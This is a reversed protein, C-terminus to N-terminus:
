FLLSLFLEQIFYDFLEDKLIKTNTIKFNRFIPIMGFKGVGGKLHIDFIKVNKVQEKILRRYFIFFKATRSFFFFFFIAEILPCSTVTELERFFVYILCLTYHLCICIYKKVMFFSCCRSSQVLTSLTLFLSSSFLSLSLSSCFLFFPLARWTLCLVPPQGKVTTRTDAHHICVTSACHVCLHVPCVADQHRDHVFKWVAATAKSNSTSSCTALPNLLWPLAGEKGELEATSAGRWACWVTRRAAAPRTSAARDAALVVLCWWCCCCMLLSVRRHKQRARARLWDTVWDTLWATLSETLWDCTHVRFLITASGLEWGGEKEEWLLLFIAIKKEKM